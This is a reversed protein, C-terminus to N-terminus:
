HVYMRKPTDFSNTFRTASMSPIRLAFRGRLQLFDPTTILDPDQPCPPCPSMDVIIKEARTM